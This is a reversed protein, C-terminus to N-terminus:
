CCDVIGELRSLISNALVFNHKNHSLKLCQSEGQKLKARQRHPRFPFSYFTSSIEKYVTYSFTKM